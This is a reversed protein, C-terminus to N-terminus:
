CNCTCTPEVCCASCPRPLTCSVMAGAAAPMPETEFSEVRLDNLNIRTRKM